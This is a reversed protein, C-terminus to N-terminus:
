PPVPAAGRGPTWCRGPTRASLERVEGAPALYLRGVADLNRAVVPELRGADIPRQDAVRSWVDGQEFVDLDAGMLLARIAIV